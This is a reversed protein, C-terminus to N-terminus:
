SQRHYSDAVLYTAADTDRISLLQRRPIRRATQTAPGHADGSRCADLQDPCRLFAPRSGALRNAIRASKLGALLCSLRVLHVVFAQLIVVNVSKMFGSAALMHQTTTVYRVLLTNKCEGLTHRCDDDKMSMIAASYIAFVLAVTPRSLSEVNKSAEDILIQVTPVHIAKTLPNVYYLFTQWLLLAHSPSPHVELLDVDAHTGWLLSTPDPVPSEANTQSGTHQSREDLSSKPGRPDQFKFVSHTLVSGESGDLM